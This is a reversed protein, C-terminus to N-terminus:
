IDLMLQRFVTGHSNSGGGQERSADQYIYIRRVKALLVRGTCQRGIKMLQVDLLMDRQQITKYKLAYESCSLVNMTM